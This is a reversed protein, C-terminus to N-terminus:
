RKIKVSRSLAKMLGPDTELLLRVFEREETARAGASGLRQVVGDTLRDLAEDLSSFVHSQLAEVEVQWVSSDAVSRPKRSPVKLTKVNKKTVPAKLKTKAM